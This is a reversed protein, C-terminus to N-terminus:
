LPFEEKEDEQSRIDGRKEKKGERYRTLMPFGQDQSCPTKRELTDEDM